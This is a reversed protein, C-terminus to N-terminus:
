VFGCLSRKVDNVGVFGFYIADLYRKQVFVAFWALLLALLASM